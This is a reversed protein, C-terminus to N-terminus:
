VLLEEVHPALRDRLLLRARHLRSKVAPVTLGLRAAIEANPLGDLDSLVLVARYIAPLAAIARDILQRQEDDILQEEPPGLGVRDSGPRQGQDFLDELPNAVHTDERVAQKRRHALAANVTVRHLWTPFAAEGRFTPLKRVVQLFVEQTVDEADKENSVMRRAMNYIRPAYDHYVQEATLQRRQLDEAPLTLSDSTIPHPEDM